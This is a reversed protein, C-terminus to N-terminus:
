VKKQSNGKWFSTWKKIREYKALFAKKNPLRVRKPTSLMVMVIINIGRLM